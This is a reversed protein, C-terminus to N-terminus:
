VFFIDASLKYHECLTKVQALTFDERGNIKANTLERSIGLVSAIEAQKINNEVLWGKFKLVKPMKGGGKSKPYGRIASLDANAQAVLRRM